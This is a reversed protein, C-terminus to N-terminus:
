DGDCIERNNWCDRRRCSSKTGTTTRGVGRWWSHRIKRPAPDGSIEVSQIITQTCTKVTLLQDTLFRLSSAIDPEEEEEDIDEVEREKSPTGEFIESDLGADTKMSQNELHAVVDNDDDFTENENVFENESNILSQNYHDIVNGVGQDDFVVQMIEDEEDFDIPELDDSCTSEGDDEIFNDDELYTQRKLSTRRQIMIASEDDEDSSIESGEEDTSDGATVVDDDDDDEEKPAPGPTRRVKSAMEGVRPTGLHGNCESLDCSDKNRKTKLRILNRKQCNSRTALNTSDGPSSEPPVFTLNM